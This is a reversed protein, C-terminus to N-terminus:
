LNFGKKLVQNNKVTNSVPTTFLYLGSIVLSCIGCALFVGSVSDGIINILSNIIFPSVFNGTNLAAGVIAIATAADDPSVMQVAYTIASPNRVAFGFGILIAGLYVFIINSSFATIFFGCAICAVAVFFINRNFRKSLKGVFFGAPIGILMCISSVLGSAEVGGLKKNQIFLAINTNYGTVFVGCLFTLLAFYLLKGNLKKESKEIRKVPTDKPLFKFVIWICPIFVLFILYSYSWHIAAIRGSLISVVMAGMSIAASQYGMIRSCELGNFYDSVINSSLTTIIGLGIGMVGSVLYLFTLSSNFLVPLIGFVVILLMSTLVMNKKSFYYVLKGSLLMTPITIISPITYVLQIQTVTANPFSILIEALLPVMVMYSLLIASMCLVSITIKRKEM